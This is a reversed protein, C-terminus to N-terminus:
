DELSIVRTRNEDDGGVFRCRVPVKRPEFSVKAGFLYGTGRLAGVRPM